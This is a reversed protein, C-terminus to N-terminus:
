GLQSLAPDPHAKGYLHGLLKTRAEHCMETLRLLTDPDKVVLRLTDGGFRYEGLTIEVFDDAPHVDSRLPCNSDVYTYQDTRLWQM